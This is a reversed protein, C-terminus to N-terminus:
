KKAGKIQKIASLVSKVIHNTSNEIHLFDDKSQFYIGGWYMSGRDWTECIVADANSIDTSAAMIVFELIDDETKYLPILKVPTDIKARICLGNDVVANTYVTRKKPIGYFLYFCGDINSEKFLSYGMSKIEGHIKRTDGPDLIPMSNELESFIKEIESEM